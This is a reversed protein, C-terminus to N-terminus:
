RVGLGNRHWERWAIWGLVLGAINITVPNFAEVLLQPMVLMVDLLLLVLGLMALAVPWIARQYFVILLGLIIEAVGGMLAIREPAVGLFGHARNMALETQSLFLIKPVLGHYIFIFGLTCRALMGDSM